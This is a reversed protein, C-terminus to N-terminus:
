TIGSDHFEREVKLIQNKAYYMKSTGLEYLEYRGWINLSSLRKPIYYRFKPLFLYEESKPVYCQFGSIIVDYPTVKCSNFHLLQLSDLETLKLCHDIVLCNNSWEVTHGDWNNDDTTISYTNISLGQNIITVTDRDCTFTVPVSETDNFDDTDPISTNNYFM